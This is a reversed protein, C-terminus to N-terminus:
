AGPAPPPAPTAEFRRAYDREDVIRRVESDALNPAAVKEFEETGLVTTPTPANFGSRAVRSGTVIIDEAGSADSAGAELAPDADTAAATQAFAPATGLVSATAILALRFGAHTVKQETM